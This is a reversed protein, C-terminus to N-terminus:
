EGFPDTLSSSQRFQIEYAIKSRSRCPSFVAFLRDPSNEGEKAFQRCIEKGWNRLVNGSKEDVLGNARRIKAWKSTHLVM